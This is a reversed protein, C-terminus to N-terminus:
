FDTEGGGGTMSVRLARVSANVTVVVATRGVVVDRQVRLGRNLTPLDVGVGVNAGTRVDIMMLAARDKRSRGKKASVNSRSLTVVTPVVGHVVTLFGPGNPVSALDDRSWVQEGTAIDIGALEPTRLQGRRREVRVVLTGDVMVGDVVPHGSTVHRNLLVEGTAVDIIWVDGGLLGIGLYGEKAEFLQQVPKNVEVQWAVGGDVLDYAIVGDSEATSDPGCLLGGTRLLQVTDYDPDPQRFLIQEILRGDQRDFLHVRRMSADCTLVRGGDMWVYAVAEGRLDREWVTSGDLLRMLTLRGDRPLAALFGDGAAMARDYLPALSPDIASEYPRAWLRRGTVLGVAFLGDTGNLVAIQGDAVGQRRQEDAFNSRRVREFAEPLRLQTDWLLEGTDIDLCELTGDTGYLLVRDRLAPPRNKGFGVLRLPSAGRTVPRSWAEEGTLRMRVPAASRSAASDSYWTLAEPSVAGRMQAVLDGVLGQSVESPNGARGSDWRAASPMPRDAFRAELEDLCPVLLEVADQVEATYLNCLGALAAVTTASEPGRRVGERLYQEAREYREGRREWDALVRRLRGGGAGVPSLDSAARLRDVVRRVDVGDSLRQLDDAVATKTDGDVLALDGASMETALRALRQGVDFRASVHVLDTFSVTQEPFTSLGLQFLTRYADVLRGMYQQLEATEIGVALRQDATPAVGHAESLYELAKEPQDAHARGAAVLAEFHVRDFALARSSDRDNSSTSFEEVVELARMAHGQLLEAWALRTVAAIDDPAAEYQALAEAHTRQLDPFKRVSSPDLSFMAPGLCTLSGLPTRTEPLEETAIVTGTERALTMLGHSTPMHIVDGSLVGRGTPVGAIQSHWVWTGDVLSLCSVTRGGLWMRTSDAGLVYSNNNPRTSWRFAGDSASFALLEHHDVPALLVLGGAVIPRSPIWPFPESDNQSHPATAYRTAWRLTFDHADVAFLAGHQSAIYVVGESHSLPTAHRHIPDIKRVSGLLVNGIVAGDSPRLIAVYMDKNRTDYPVWISGEVEIPVESFQVEGLVDASDASRGRQWRVLGTVADVATLRTGAARTARLVGVTGLGFLPLDNGVVDGGTYTSRGTGDVFFVLGAAVSILSRADDHSRSRSYRQYQPSIWEPSVHRTPRMMADADRFRVEWQVTLDDAALAVCGAPKRVFLTQGDSALQTLPFGTPETPDDDLIRRWVNAVTGPLDYRWPTAALVSPRVTQGGDGTEWRSLEVVVSALDQYWSPLRAGEVQHAELEAILAAADQSRGVLASAVLMKALVRAQPVDSDPVLDNLDSLLALAESPRGEDLALSALWETADDGHRTLLFRQAVRRLLRRSDNTQARRMLGLAKGDYLIRYIRLGEAGLTSIRRVAFRRASEFLVGNGMAGDPRPILSGTPDDIVRQLSDIALKWDGRDVGEEARSLLNALAASTDILIPDPAAARKRNIRQQQMRQPRIVPPRPRQAITAVPLSALVAVVGLLIRRLYRRGASGRGDGSRNQGGPAATKSTLRDM